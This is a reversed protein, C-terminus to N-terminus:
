GTLLRKARRVDRRMALGIAGFGLLMLAWTAPEPVAEGLPTYTYTLTYTAYDYAPTGGEFDPTGFALNDASVLVQNIGPGPVAPGTACVGFSEYFTPNCLNSQDVFAGFLSPDLVFTGAGTSVFQEGRLVDGLQGTFSYSEAGTVVVTYNTGAVTVTFPGTYAFQATGTQVQPSGLPYGPFYPYFSTRASADIQLSIGTLTGLSSDFSKLTAKNTKYVFCDDLYCSITTASTTLTDALASSGFGLSAAFAVGVLGMRMVIGGNQSEANVVTFM